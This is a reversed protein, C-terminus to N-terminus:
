DEPINKVMKITWDKTDGNEAEVEFTEGNGLYTRATAPNAPSTIKAKSSVKVDLSFSVDDNHTYTGTWTRSTANSVWSVSGNFARDPNTSVSSTVTINDIDCKDSKDDKCSGFGIVAFLLAVAFFRSKM